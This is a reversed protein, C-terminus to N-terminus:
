ILFTSATPSPEFRMIFEVYHLDEDTDWLKMSSNLVTIKYFNGRARDMYWADGLMLQMLHRCYQKEYYGTNMRWIEAGQGNFTGSLGTQFDTGPARVRAFSTRTAEGEIIHRGSCRLVELGGIGNEYLIYQDYETTHDDLQYKVSKTSFDLNNLIIQYYAVTKTDDYLDELGLLDWGVSIYNVSLGAASKGALAHLSSTGDTYFFEAFVVMTKASNAYFYIYDVQERRVERIIQRGDRDKYSHLLADTAAAGFGFWYRSAGHVVLYDASIAATVEPIAPNGYRDVHKFFLRKAADPSAGSEYATLSTPAPPASRLPLMMSLDGRCRKNFRSYPLNARSIYVESNDANKMWIEMYCSLNDETPNGDIDILDTEIQFYIPDGNFNMAKPAEVLTTAM